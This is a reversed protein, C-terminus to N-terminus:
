DHMKGFRQRAAGFKEAATAEHSPAFLLSAIGKSRAEYEERNRKATLFVPFVHGLM